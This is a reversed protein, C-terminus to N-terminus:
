FPPFAKPKIEGWVERTPKIAAMQHSLSGSHESWQFYCLSIGLRDFREPRAEHLEQHRDELDGLIFFKFTRPSTQGRQQLRRQPLTGHPWAASSCHSVFCHPGSLFTPMFSDSKAKLRLCSVPIHVNTNTQTHTAVSHFLLPQDEVMTLVTALSPYGKLDRLPKSGSNERDASCVSCLMYCHPSLLM